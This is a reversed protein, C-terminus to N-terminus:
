PLDFFHMTMTEIEQGDQGIRIQGNKFERSATILDDLHKLGLKIAQIGDIGFSRYTGATSLGTVHVSCFWDGDGTLEPLSVWAEVEAHGRDPEAVM